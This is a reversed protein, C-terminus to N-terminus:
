HQHPQSPHGTVPDTRLFLAAVCRPAVRYHSGPAPPATAIDTIDEPSERSTDIWRRWGAIAAAPAPPLEFDLAEWYANFMVHLWFPLLVRGARFTLAVSHSNDAWDPSGLRVGHWDFEARLVLENLSLDFNAEGGAGIWRLRQAILTQVFRWLDRHRDLLSWDLWSVENDQCYANNNGRQSRRMEDGMQLMPTGVSILLIVIFNKIQRRRLREVEPDDTPGEVGCNWSLNNDSGDRNGEGNTENHKGSYSVLDNLTFGDYCTVFNISQEPEREQQGFIDPSGLVRQALRQVTGRDAKVFGRVDDRFRGNWEKWSDGVFTGVQYLGAADWAEAILTTGALVPDSEIDWLVPPNELPRGIEDRALISALDFRFGDVHMEAVWYRLSDVIMRPVIPQNTNLTNGTGSYNAYQGREKDLKYYIENALGCFCLTPGYVQGSGTGPVFAHWSHYTRHTRADLDIVRAPQATAADDFLLLELRSAQRSYVSFNVGEAFVTASLPFSRGTQDARIDPEDLRVGDGDICPLQDAFNV